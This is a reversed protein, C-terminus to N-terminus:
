SGADAPALNSDQLFIFQSRLAAIQSAWSTPQDFAFILKM